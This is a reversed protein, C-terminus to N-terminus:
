VRKVRTFQEGIEDIKLHPVPIKLRRHLREGINM